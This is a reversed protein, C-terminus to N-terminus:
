RAGLKREAFEVIAPDRKPDLLEEFQVLLDLAQMVRLFNGLSVGEGGSEVSRLTSISVESLGALAEQTLGRFKRAKELRDGLRSLAGEVLVPTPRPKGVRISISTRKM